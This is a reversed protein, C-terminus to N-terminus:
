WFFFSGLTMVVRLATSHNVDAQKAQSFPETTETHQSSMDASCGRRPSREAPGEPDCGAEPLSTSGVARHQWPQLEAAVDRKSVVVHPAVTQRQPKCNEDLLSNLNLALIQM